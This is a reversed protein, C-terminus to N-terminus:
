SATSRTAADSRVPVPSVGRWYAAMRISALMGTMSPKTADRRMMLLWPLHAGGMM